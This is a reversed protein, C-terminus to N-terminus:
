MAPVSLFPSCTRNGCSITCSSRCDAMSCPRSSCSDKPGARTGCRRTSRSTSGSSVHPSIPTSVKSREPFLTGYYFADGLIAEVHQYFDAGGMLPVLDIDSTDFDALREAVRPVTPEGTRRVKGRCHIANESGVDYSRSSITFAFEDPDGAVPELATQLRVATKPIPCPQLFVIEEFHAPGGELAELVLEIYGAAPM